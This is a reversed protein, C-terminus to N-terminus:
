AAADRPRHRALIEKRLHRAIMLTVSYESTYPGFWTAKTRHYGFKTFYWGDQRREVVWDSLTYMARTM